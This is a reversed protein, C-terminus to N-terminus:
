IKEKQKNEYWNIIMETAKKIRKQRTESKKAEEIVKVYERQHSPPMTEFAKWGLPVNKLEEMFDDPVEVGKSTRM